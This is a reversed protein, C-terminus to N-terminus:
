YIEGRLLHDISFRGLQRRKISTTMEIGVYRDFAGRSRRSFDVM